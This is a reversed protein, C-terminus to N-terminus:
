LFINQYEAEVLNMILSKGRSIAGVNGGDPVRRVLVAVFLLLASFKLLNLTASRISIRIYGLFKQLILRRIM